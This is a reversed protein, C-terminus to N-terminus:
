HTRFPSDSLHHLLILLLENLIPDLMCLAAVVCKHIEPLHISFTLTLATPVLFTVLSLFSVFELILLGFQLLSLVILCSFLTIGTHVTNAPTNSPFKHFGVFQKDLEQVRRKKGGRIPASSAVM